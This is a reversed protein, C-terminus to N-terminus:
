HIYGESILQLSILQNLHGWMPQCSAALEAAGSFLTVVTVDTPRHYAVVAWALQSPATRIQWTQFLRLFEKYPGM